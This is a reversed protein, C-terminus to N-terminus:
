SELKEKEHLKIYANTICDVVNHKFKLKRSPLSYVWQEARALENLSLDIDFIKKLAKIKISSNWRRIVDLGEEIKNRSILLKNVANIIKKQLKYNQISNVSEKVIKLKDLNALSLFSSIIVKKYGHRNDIVDPFVMNSLLKSALGFQNFHNLACYIDIKIELCFFRGEQDWDNRAKIRDIIHNQTEVGLDDQKALLHLKQVEIHIEDFNNNDFDIIQKFQRYINDYQKNEIIKSLQLGCAYIIFLGHEFAEASEANHARNKCYDDYSELYESLVVLSLVNLFNDFGKPIAISGFDLYILDRMKLESLTKILRKHVSLFFNKLNVDFKQYNESNIEEKIEALNKVFCSNSSIAELSSIYDIFNFLKRLENQRVRAVEQEIVTKWSSNVQMNQLDRGKLFTCIYTTAEIPLVKFSGFRTKKRPVQSIEEEAKRKISLAISQNSILLGCTPASEM